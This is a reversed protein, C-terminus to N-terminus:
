TSSSEKSEYKGVRDIVVFIFYGFLALFVIVNCFKLLFNRFGKM